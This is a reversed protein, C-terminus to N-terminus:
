INTALTPKKKCIILMEKTLIIRLVDDNSSGLLVDQSFNLYKLNSISKFIGM